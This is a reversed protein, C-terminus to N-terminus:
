RVARKLACDVLDLQEPIQAVQELTKGGEFHIFITIKHKFPM